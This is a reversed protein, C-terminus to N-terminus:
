ARGGVSPPSSEISCPPSNRCSAASRRRGAYHRDLAGRLVHGPWWKAPGHPTQYGAEQLAQALTSLPPARFPTDPTARAHEQGLREMLNLLYQRPSLLRVEDCSRLLARVNRETFERGKLPIWGQQNLIGAIQGQTHGRTRLEIM